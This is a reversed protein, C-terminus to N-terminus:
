LERTQYSLSGCDCTQLVGCRGLPEEVTENITMDDHEPQILGQTNSSSSSDHRSYHNM